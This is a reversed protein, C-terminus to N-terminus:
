VSTKNIYLVRMGKWIWSIEVETFFYMPCLGEFFDHENMSHISPHMDAGTDYLELITESLVKLRCRIKAM